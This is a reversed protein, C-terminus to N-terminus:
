RSTFRGPAVTHPVASLTHCRQCHTAGNVIHAAACPAYWYLITAFFVPIMRLVLKVEEVQQRTFTGRGPPGACSTMVVTIVTMMLIIMVTTMMVIMMVVIMMVIVIVIMVVTVIVMMVIVMMIWFCVGLHPQAIAGELWVMSKNHPINSGLLPALTDDNRPPSRGAM